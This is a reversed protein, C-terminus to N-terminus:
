DWCVDAWANIKTTSTSTAHVDVGLDSSANLKMLASAVEKASKGSEVYASIKDTDTVGMASCVTEIEAERAAKKKEIEADAEAQMERRLEEKVEAKLADKDINSAETSTTSGSSTAMKNGEIYTLLESYSGVKDALGLEITGSNYWRANTNVVEEVSIGRNKSVLETFARYTKDVDAQLINLEEESLKETPNGLVKFKGAYVYTVEIGSAKLADEYAVHKMFVGISGLASGESVWVEKFSSILAYAASLAHTDAIAVFNTTSERLSYIHDACAFMGTTVGGGSSFRCIVDSIDADQDLTDLTAMFGEYSATAGCLGEEHRAVMGGKVDVVAISGKTSVSLPTNTQYRKEGNLFNSASIELTELDGALAATVYADAYMPDVLTPKSAEAHLFAVLASSNTTRKALKNLLKLM